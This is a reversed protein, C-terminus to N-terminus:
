STIIPFKDLSESAYCSRKRYLVCNEIFLKDKQNLLKRVDKHEKKLDNVSPKRDEEMWYRVRRLKPDHDQLAAIDAPIYEPLTTMASVTRMQFETMEESNLQTLLRGDLM